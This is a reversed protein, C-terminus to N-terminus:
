QCSTQHDPLGYSYTMDKIVNSSSDRLIHILTTKGIFPEQTVEYCSLVVPVLLENVYYHATLPSQLVILPSQAGIFREGRQWIMHLWRICRSTLYDSRQQYISRRIIRTVVSKRNIGKRRMPDRKRIDPGNGSLPMTLIMEPRTECFSRCWIFASVLRQLFNQRRTEERSPPGQARAIRVQVLNVDDSSLLVYRFM